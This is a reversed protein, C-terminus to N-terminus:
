WMTGEPFMMKDAYVSQKDFKGDGDSDSLKVIRHPKQELQQKTPATSGSSDSVYFNGQEDFDATIPRDVLPPGAIKEIIFGDPVTFTRNDITFTAGSLSGGCSLLAAVFWIRNGM